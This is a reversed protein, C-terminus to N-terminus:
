AAEEEGFAAHILAAGRCAACAVLRGGSAAALRGEAAIEADVEDLPISRYYPEGPCAPECSAIELAQNGSRWIALSQIHGDGIDYHTHYLREGDYQARMILDGLATLETERAPTRRRGNPKVAELAMSRRRADALLELYTGWAAPNDTVTGEGRRRIVDGMTGRLTPHAIIFDAWIGARWTVVDAVAEEYDSRQDDFTAENLQYALRAMDVVAMLALVGGRGSLGGARAKTHAARVVAWHSLLDAKIKSMPSRGRISRYEALIESADLLGGAEEMIWDMSDRPLSNM